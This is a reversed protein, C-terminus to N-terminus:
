SRRRHISLSHKPVQLRSGTSAALTLTTAVPSASLGIASSLSGGFYSDGLYSAEVQHTGNGPVSVPQATATATQTLRNLLVSVTNNSSNTVALDAYGDGNFDGAVVYSPNSTGTGVAITSTNQAPFTGDGKGLLVSVTSDSYNAVAMDPIGDGNFDGVAVCQPNTGVPYTSQPQFTGNGNGLLVSVNSPMAITGYNAVALDAYGDGNFDGIAIGWPATGTAYNCTTTGTPCTPFTGTGNAPNLLVSVTNDGSNAVALDPSGDGNFDAV